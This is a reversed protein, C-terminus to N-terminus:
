RIISVKGILAEEGEETSSFVLYIGSSVQAGNIDFSDWTALSGEANTEYVMNGSVDTIKVRADTALGSIGIQGDFGPLVPNPFIGVKPEEDGDGGNDPDAADSWYSIIGKDTGIFVEGTKAQIAIDKINNSPLPSNDINFNLLAETGNEDFLFIGNTTGIWKRNGGDVAICTAIEDQLLPRGEVIPLSADVIQDSFISGPDHFVAVGENTALWISGDKDKVVDNVVDSPLGGSGSNSSLSKEESIEDNFVSFGRKGGNGSFIIWKTGFNDIVFKVPFEAIDKSPKTLHYGITDQDVTIEHLSFIKRNGHNAIWLSGDDDVELHTVRVYSADTFQPANSVLTSGSTTDNIYKYTGPDANRNWEMLGELYSGFYYLDTVPNYVASIVDIFRFDYTSGATRSTWTEDEFYYFGGNSFTPVFEINYGGSLGIVTNETSYFAFLNPTNPGNPAHGTYNDGNIHIISNVRDAYWIDQSSNLRADRPNSIFESSHEVFSKSTSLSYIKGQFGYVILGNDSKFFNVNFDWNVPLGTQSFQGNIYRFIGRDKRVVYLTDKLTAQFTVDNILGDNDSLFTWSQFDLLNYEPSIEAALWGRNTILYISDNNEAIVSANISIQEGNEGINGYTEKIEKKELDLLVLGFGCSLYAFKDRFTIHNIQKSGLISAREIDNINFINNGVILDMNGNTYGILLSNTQADYNMASINVESLGDIKSMRNLSGDEMDYYFISNESAGYVREGVVAVYNMRNYPSHVRWDGIGFSNGGALTEIVQWCILMTIFLIRKM